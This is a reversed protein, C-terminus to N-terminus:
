PAWTLNYPDWKGPASGYFLPDVFRGVIALADDLTQAVTLLARRAESAYGQEWM